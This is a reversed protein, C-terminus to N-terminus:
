IGVRMGAARVAQIIDCERRQAFVADAKRASSSPASHPAGADSSPANWSPPIGRPKVICRLV